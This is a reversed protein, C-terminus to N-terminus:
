NLSLSAKLFKKKLLELKNKISADIITDDVQLIFGGVVSPNIKTIFIITKRYESELRSRIESLQSETLAIASTLKVRLIGQREDHILTYAKGIELLGDVRNKKGLFELFQMMVPGAFSKVTERMIQLKVSHKVVPSELMRKLQANDEIVTVINEMEDSVGPVANKDIALDYLSNAYLLAAKSLSM